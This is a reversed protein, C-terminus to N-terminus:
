VLTALMSRGSRRASRVLGSDGATRGLVSWDYADIVVVRQGSAPSFTYYASRSGPPLYDNKTM